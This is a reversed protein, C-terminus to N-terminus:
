TDMIVAITLTDDLMRSVLQSSLHHTYLTRVQRNEEAEQKVLQKVLDKICRACEKEIRDDVMPDKVLPPRDQLLLIVWCPDSEDHTPIVSSGRLTQLMSCAFVFPMTVHLILFSQWNEALRATASM